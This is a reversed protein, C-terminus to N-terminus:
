HGGVGLMKAAIAEPDLMYAGTRLRTRIEQVQESRVDESGHAAQVLRQLEQAEPSITVEDAQPAGASGANTPAKPAGANRADSYSQLVQQIGAPNVNLPDM